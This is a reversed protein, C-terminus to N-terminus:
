NHKKIGIGKAIFAMTLITFIFAQLLPEAIDFFANLPLPMVAAFFPIGTHTIKDSVFHMLQFFLAVIIVGGLINGFLRFALSIPFSIEEILKIPVMFPYPDAFHKLYGKVGHSRISSAQIIIFTAGALAFTMNVDSTPPRFGFLGMMNCLSIWCFITGVYAGFFSNEKGMTNSTWNYIMKVIWEALVQKGKPVKKLNSGLFILLISLVVACILAVITTETIYFSDSFKIIIRPGIHSLDHM